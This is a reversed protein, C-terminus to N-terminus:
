VQDMWFVLLEDIESERFVNIIQNIGPIGQTVPVWSGFATSDPVVLAVQDKNHGWVGEVQARIIVYGFASSFVGGFDTIGLTGASLDILPGVDLSCVEVSEPTM